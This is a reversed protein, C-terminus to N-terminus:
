GEASICDTYEVTGTSEVALLLPWDLVPHPLFLKSMVKGRTDGGVHYEFLKTWLMFEPEMHNPKM